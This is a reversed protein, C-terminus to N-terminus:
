AAGGGRRRDRPLARRLDQAPLRHGRGRHAQAARAQGRRRGPRLRHGRRPPRPRGLRRHGRLGRIALDQVHHQCALRPDPARGPRPAHGLHHRRARAAGPVRRPQRCGRRAAARQRAGGRVPGQGAGPRPGRGRRHHRQRRLLAKGPVGRRVQQDPAVRHRGDGGALHLERLRHAAADHDPAAAEADLLKALEPDDALWADYPSAHVYVANQDTMARARWHRHSHGHGSTPPRSTTTPKSRPSRRSAGNTAAGPRSPPWSRTSPKRPWRPARGGTRRPVGRQRPQADPRSPRHDRRPRRRRLRGPAQQRRHRDRHGLRVRVRRARRARRDRRARGGGRLRPLRRRGGLRDRPRLGRAGARRSPRRPAGEPPLRRPRCRGRDADGFCVSPAGGARGAQRAGSVRGTRQGAMASVPPRSGRVGTTTPTPWTVTGSDGALVQGLPGLRDREHGPGEVGGGSVRPRRARATSQELPRLGDPHQHREAPAVRVGTGQDGRPSPIVGASDIRVLMPPLPGWLTTLSVARAM